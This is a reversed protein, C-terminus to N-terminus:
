PSKFHIGSLVAVSVADANSFSVTQKNPRVIEGRAYDRIQTVKASSSRLKRIDKTKQSQITIRGCEIRGTKLDSAAAFNTTRPLIILYLRREKEGQTSDSLSGHTNLLVLNGPKTMILSINLSSGLVTNKTLSNKVSPEGEREDRPSSIERFEKCDIEQYVVNPTFYKENYLLKGQVEYTKTYINLHNFIRSRSRAVYLYFFPEDLHVGVDNFTQGQSNNITMAYAPILPFYRRKLFCPLNVDSPGLETRTLFFVDGLNCESAIKAKLFNEHLGTISLRTGNCLGEKSNLNRLLMVIVGKKLM